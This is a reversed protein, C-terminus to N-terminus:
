SAIKVKSPRIVKSKLQYGAQFEELVTGSEKDSDEQSLVEHIHPDFKQGLADIRTLGEQGLVKFFNQFVLELGEKDSPDQMNKIAQEFSDLVSLLDTILQESAHEQIHSKEKDFQKKLNDFDAQLYQLQNLREEALKTQEEFAKLKKSSGKTQKQTTKKPIKNEM